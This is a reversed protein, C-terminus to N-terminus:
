MIKRYVIDLENQKFKSIFNIITIIIPCESKSISCIFKVWHEYKLKIQSETIKSNYNISNPNMDWLPIIIIYISNSIGLYNSHNVQYDLQGGYDHLKILINNNNLKISKDNIELGITGKDDNINEHRIINELVRNTGFIFTSYNITELIANNLM